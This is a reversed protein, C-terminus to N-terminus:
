KFGKYDKVNDVDVVEVPIVVDKEAITKGDLYDVMIQIGDQIMAPPYTVDFYDALGALEKSYNNPHNGRMVQYSEELGSSAALNVTGDLFQSKLADDIASGKLAEFIGMSIESDHTFIYDTDAFNKKNIWEEFLERGKARSWGTAPLETIAADIEAQTWGADLLAQEFGSNRMTPVSSLDGPIILIKDDKTLGKKLFREATLSGIQENDGKVTAVADDVVSDIIRDVMVFPINAAALREMAAQVSNDYPLIVVSKYNKNAAIDDIQSIQNAADSSTIVNAKYVGAANIEAAKEQAFSMVAGTWGHDANPVLIAIDGSGIGSDDCAALAFAMTIALAAIIVIAAIKKIARSKM